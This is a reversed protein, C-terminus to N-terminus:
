LRFPLKPLDDWSYRDPLNPLGGYTQMYYEALKFALNVRDFRESRRSFGTMYQANNAHAIVELTNFLQLVLCQHDLGSTKVGIGKYSLDNEVLATDTLIQLALNFTADNSISGVSSRGGM